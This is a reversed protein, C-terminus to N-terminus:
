NVPQRSPVQSMGELCYARSIKNLSEMSLMMVAWAHAVLTEPVHSLLMFAQCPTALQDRLHHRLLLCRCDEPVHYAQGNSVGSPPFHLECAAAARGHRFLFELLSGPAHQHLLRQLHIAVRTLVRGLNHALSLWNSRHSLAHSCLLACRHESFSCSITEEVIHQGVGELLVMHQWNLVHLCPYLDTLPFLLHPMSCAEALSFRRGVMQAEPMSKYAAAQPTPLARPGTLVQLAHRALTIM